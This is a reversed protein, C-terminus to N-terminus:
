NPRDLDHKRLPHAGLREDREEETMFSEPVNTPFEDVMKQFNTKFEPDKYTKVTEQVQKHIEHDDVFEDFSRADVNKNAVFGPEKPEGEWAPMEGFMKEGM